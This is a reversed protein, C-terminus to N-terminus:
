GSKGRAAAARRTKYHGSYVERGASVRDRGVWGAQADWRLSCHKSRADTHADKAGEDAQGQHQEQEQGLAGRLGVGLGRRLLGGAEDVVDSGDELVVAESAVVALLALALQVHGRELVEALAAGFVIGD